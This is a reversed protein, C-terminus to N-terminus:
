GLSYYFFRGIRERKIKGQKQLRFVYRRITRPKAHLELAIERTTKLQNLVKILQEIKIKLNEMTQKSKPFDNFKLIDKIAM